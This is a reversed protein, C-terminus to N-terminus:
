RLCGLSSSDLQFLLSEADGDCGGSTEEGESGSEARARRSSPTVVAHRRRAAAATAVLRMAKGNGSDLERHYVTLSSLYYGYSICYRLATADM